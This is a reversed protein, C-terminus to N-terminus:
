KLLYENMSQSLKVISTDAAYSNAVAASAILFSRDKLMQGHAVAFQKIRIAM